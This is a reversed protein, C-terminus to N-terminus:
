SFFNNIYNIQKQIQYCINIDSEYTKQLNILGITSNKLSNLLTMHLYLSESDTRKKLLEYQFFSQTLIYKIFLISKIRSSGRFWRKVSPVYSDELYIKTDDHYIKDFPKIQSITQLNEYIDKLSMSIINEFINNIM